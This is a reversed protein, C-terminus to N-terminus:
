VATLAGHCWRFGMAAVPRTTGIFTTGSMPAEREAPQANSGRNSIPSGLMM